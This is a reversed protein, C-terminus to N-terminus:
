HKKRGQSYPVAQTEAWYSAQCILNKSHCILSIQMFHHPLTKRLRRAAKKQVFIYTPLTKPPCFAALRYKDQILSKHPMTLTTATIIAM